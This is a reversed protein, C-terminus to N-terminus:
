LLIDKESLKSIPFESNQFILLQNQFKCTRQLVILSLDEERIKTRIPNILLNTQDEEIEPTVEEEIETEVIEVVEEIVVTSETEPTLDREEKVQDRKPANQAEPAVERPHDINKTDIVVVQDLDQDLIMPHILHAQIDEKKINKAKRSKMEIKIV